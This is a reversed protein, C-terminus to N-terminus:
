IMEVEHQALKSTGSIGAPTFSYEEKYKKDDDEDETDEGEDEGEYVAFKADGDEDGVEGHTHAETKKLKWAVGFYHYIVSAMIMLFFLMGSVLYESIWLKYFGGFLNTCLSENILLNYISQLTPCDLDDNLKDISDSVAVTDNGATWWEAKESAYGLSECLPGISNIADAMENMADSASSISSAYPNDVSCEGFYLIVDKLSGPVLSAFKQTPQMCVDALLTLLIMAVGCLISLVLVVLESFLILIVLICKSQLFVGLAYLIMLAVVGAYSAFLAYTKYTVM